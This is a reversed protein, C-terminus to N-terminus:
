IGLAYACYIFFWVSGMTFGTVAGKKMGSLKAEGLHSEYRYLVYINKAIVILIDKISIFGKKKENKDM